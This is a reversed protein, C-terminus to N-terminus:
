ISDALINKTMLYADKGKGYYDSVRGEYQYGLKVYLKMAPVNDVSVHLSISGIGANLCIEEARLMLTTGIGLRRAEPVVGISAIEASRRHFFIVISGLVGRGEAVLIISGPHKLFSLIVARSFRGFNFASREVRDLAEIDWPGARRIKYDSNNM